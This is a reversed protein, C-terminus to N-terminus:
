ASKLLNEVMILDEKTDVSKIPGEIPVMRIKDGHEIIRNMDVSEIRELDTEPLNNYKILYDRRFPIVCVQKFMPVNKVGKKRSPIPERSFYIANNHKDVVVKPENPDEFEELSDIQAMLNVVNVEPDEFPALSADIMAPTVMVEDGQIMVVIDITKGNKEEIKLMAEATRDSARQHSKSTMIVEGGISGTYESIEKDCTAVYVANM